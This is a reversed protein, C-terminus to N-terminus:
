KTNSYIEAIERWSDDKGNPVVIVEVESNNVVAQLASDIARTLFEPRGFTPIVVSLLPSREM